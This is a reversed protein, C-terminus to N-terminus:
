HGQRQMLTGVTRQELPSRWSLEFILSYKEHVGIANEAVRNIVALRGPNLRAKGFEATL